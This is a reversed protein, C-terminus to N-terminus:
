STTIIHSRLGDIGLFYTQVVRNSCGLVISFRPNFCWAYIAESTHSGLAM